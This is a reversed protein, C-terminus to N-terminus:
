SLRGTESGRAAPEAHGLVHLVLGAGFALTSYLYYAYYLPLAAAAFALGKRRELLQFLRWNPAVAGVAAVLAPILLFPYAPSLAALAFFTWVLVSVIRQALSVNLDDPLQGSQLILRTWPLAREFVDCALMRGLTWRKLHKVQVTPDLAIRRGAGLLRCGLEIDEVSPRAFSEDFGGAEFFVERRIAGCASWFTSARPNGSQHYYHNLLNKYQSVFGPAHPTDDYSGILADL